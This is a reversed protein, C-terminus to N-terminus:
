LQSTLELAAERINSAGYIGRGVIAHWRDGAVKAAESISGGQAVFGPAFFTPHIGDQELGERLKRIFEPKNGPVVFHDVKYLQSALGYMRMPGDDIILGGDSAIYNPHTMMGGILIGINRKQLEEIWAKETAPGAQPFLIAYDIDCEDMVGAFDKGTDPIDTGGKQHDYILPKQTYKRATAVVKPLGHMLGLRFGIKYASVADINATEGVIREFFELPVDCAPIISKDRTIRRAECGM